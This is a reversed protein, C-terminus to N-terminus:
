DLKVTIGGYIQLPRETYGQWVEYDQSLLNVMKIYAGLRDTFEVETRGGVLLFADLDEGFGSERSGTYDAWAEITLRNFPRLTMSSNIGWTEHFPIRDGSHLAPDQVYVQGSLWFREPLLQHTVGTAFRLNQADMYNIDYLGYGLIADGETLPSRTYYAYNQAYLFGAEAHLKSGSFYEFEAGASFDLHYSHRLTNEASLFRNAEHHKQITGLFPKGEAKGTLKFKDGVLHEVKVLPGFYVTDGFQDAGYYISADAVIQTTYNFLRQYEAGAQLTYWQEETAEGATYVGGTAGTKLTFTENLNTGAWRKSFSGNYISEDMAGSLNGADAVVDFYNFNIQANWGEITNKFKQVDAGLRFGTYDKRGNGPIGAGSPFDPLHNFDSQIGGDLHLQTKPTVKTAFDLNANLFRFSSEREELHGSSSSYDLDGGIYSKANIRHVGWFRAEPSAFSGAGLRGYANIEEAYNNGTYGPPAPRSLNSIPLNAVVQEQTEMFPRRNPDIQYVRPKPDFGLIPQRNLGPFRAQFQSRIEIDQPNIEPLLSTEGGEGQQQAVSQLSLGTLVLTLFVTPLFRAM